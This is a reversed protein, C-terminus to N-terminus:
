IFLRMGVARPHSMKSGLQELQKSNNLIRHDLYLMNSGHNTSYFFKNKEHLFIQLNKDFNTLKMAIFMSIDLGPDSEFPPDYTYCPGSSEHPVFQNWYKENKLVDVEAEGSTFRQELLSLFEKKDYTMQEIIKPDDNLTDLIFYIYM